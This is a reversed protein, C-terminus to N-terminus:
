QASGPESADIAMALTEAAVALRRLPAVLHADGDKALAAAAELARGFESRAIAVEDHIASAVLDPRTYRFELHPKGSGVELANSQNPPSSAM